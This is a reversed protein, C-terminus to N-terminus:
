GDAGPSGNCVITLHVGTVSLCSILKLYNIEFIKVSDRKFHVFAMLIVVPLPKFAGLQNGQKGRPEPM